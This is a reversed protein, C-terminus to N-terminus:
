RRDLRAGQIFSVVPAPDDLGHPHHGIGPKLIIDIRGGLARYREALVATNEEYPVVEDADGCVNIMPIRHRALTHLRHIPQFEPSLIREESEHHAELVQEWARPDGAGRGKGAPWSRFDCVPADAYIAHIQEPYAEAYRYAFLGGRSIAVFTFKAELEMQRLLGYFARGHRVGDPSAYFDLVDTYALHYGDHLLRIDAGPWADFFTPRWLWPNGAAPRHPLVIWSSRGRFHFHVRPHDEWVDQGLESVEAFTALSALFPSNM